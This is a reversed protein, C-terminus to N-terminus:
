GPKSTEAKADRFGYEDYLWPVSEKPDYGIAKEVFMVYECIDSYLAEMETLKLGALLTM